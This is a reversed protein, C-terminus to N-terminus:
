AALRMELGNRGDVETPAFWYFTTKPAGAGPRIRKDYQVKVGAQKQLAGLFRNRPPLVIGAAVAFDESALYWVEDVTWARDKQEHRRMWDLFGVAAATIALPAARGVTRIPDAPGDANLYADPKSDANGNASWVSLTPVM